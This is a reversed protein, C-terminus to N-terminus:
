KLKKKRAGRSARRRTSRTLYVRGVNVLAFIVVLVPWMSRTQRGSSLAATTSAAVMEPWVCEHAPVKGTECRLTIAEVEDDLAQGLETDGGFSEYDTGLSSSLHKKLMRFTLDSAAFADYNASIYRRVEEVMNEEDNDGM